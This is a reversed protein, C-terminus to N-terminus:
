IRWLLSNNMGSRLHFSVAGGIIQSRSNEAHALDIESIDMRELYIEGEM